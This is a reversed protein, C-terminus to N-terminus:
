EIEVGEPLVDDPHVYNDPAYQELDLDQALASPVNLHGKMVKLEGDIYGVFHYATNGSPAVMSEYYIKILWLEPSLKEIDLIECRFDPDHPSNKEAELMSEYEYHAYKLTAALYDQMIEEVYGMYFERVDKESLEASSCASSLMLMLVASIICIIRKM